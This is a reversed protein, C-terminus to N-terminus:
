EWLNWCSDDWSWLLYHYGNPPIFWLPVYADYKSKQGTEPLLNGSCTVNNKVGGKKVERGEVSMRPESIILPLKLGITWFLYNEDILFLFHILIFSQKPGKYEKESQNKTIVRYGLCLVLSEFLSWLIGRYRYNM